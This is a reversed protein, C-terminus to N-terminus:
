TKARPVKSLWADFRILNIAIATFPHQLHTIITGLEQRIQLYLNGKPFAARAVRATEQPVSGFAQPHLPMSRRRNLIQESADIDIKERWAFQEGKDMTELSEAVTNAGIFFWSECSHLDWFNRNREMQHHM